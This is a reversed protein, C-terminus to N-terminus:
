KAINKPEFNFQQNDIFYCSSCKAYSDMTNVKFYKCDKCFQPPLDEAVNLTNLEIQTYSIGNRFMEVFIEKRQLECIEIIAMKFINQYALNGLHYKELIERIKKNM